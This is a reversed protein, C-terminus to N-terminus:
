PTRRRPPTGEGSSPSQDGRLKELWGRVRGVSRRPRAIRQHERALLVRLRAAEAEAGALRDEVDDLQARQRKGLEEAADLRVRADRMMWTEGTPMLMPRADVRGFLAQLNDDWESQPHETRSSPRDRWWHYIALTRDITTVGTIQAARLLFDYDEMTTMSEDFSLGFDTHLSRPFVFGIPPSQNATVHEFLSFHRSYCSEPPGTSRVGPLGHVDTTTVDQRVTRVRLIRGAHEREAHALEVVWTALVLDDDDFVSVYRGRANELGLNLPASREGRDLLLLRIRDRLFDPQEEIVRRVEAQEAPATRHAVVLVEFDTVTQGALALLAERLEQIRRGQTRVIVSLFVDGQSDAASVEDQESGAATVAWVFETTTAHPEAQNRVGRLWDGITSSESLAVHGEPFHQDSHPLVMNREAVRVLAGRQLERELSAASHLPHRTRDPRGVDPDDWRGLLNKVAVDYHTVNPASIVAVGGDRALLRGVYALAPSGHELGGLLTVSAVVRDGLVQDLRDFAAPDSLDAQHAEYGRERLDQVRRPDVDAGVYGLGLRDGVPGALHGEGCGLDVHVAGEPRGTVVHESLLDLVHGHTSAPTGSASADSDRM